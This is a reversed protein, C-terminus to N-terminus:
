SCTVGTPEPVVGIPEDIIEEDTVAVSTETSSPLLSTDVPRSETSVGTFDEGTIVVVVGEEVSDDEELEVSTPLHGAVELAALQNGPAYRVITHEVREDANSTAQVQFGMAEFETEAQGAQGVVGSGNEIALTVMSPSITDPPLGRFVNLVPQAAAEELRLVSAGGDTMWQEVPLTHTRLQDGSFERFQRALDVMAGIDMGDDVKLNDATSSLLDNLAVVDFGGTTAAARDIVKRMFEQQRSMRGLDGTPDVEWDLDENMYELHRSRAYALAQDGDLVVCGAGVDLGSNRDRMATHFEMPVGDVADVIGKFSKFDIEIYHNIELDFNQEITDVLRQPGSNYATNIRESGSTGAIPLWLDRPFSLLDITSAQPDVRAIMITDSRHGGPEVEGNLFADANADDESVVERDDSGVILYNQPQGNAAASLDLDERGIQSYRYWVYGFLLAVAVIAGVVAVGSGMLLRQRWTRRPTPALPADDEPLPVHGNSM